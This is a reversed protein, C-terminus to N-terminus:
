KDALQVRTGFGQRRAHERHWERGEDSRHWAAALYRISELHARQADSCKGKTHHSVHGGGDMLALNDIDNNLPNEDVHHVVAGDPIPGNHFKWVERHLSEVGRAIDQGGPSYYRRHNPKDADPYRRFRVGNFVVEDVRVSGHETGRYETDGYRRWLAYHRNCLDRVIKGGGGCVRCTKDLRPAEVALPDGRGWWSRYHRRCWGRATVPSGCGEISCCAM